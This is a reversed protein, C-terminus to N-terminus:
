LLRDGAGAGASAKYVEDIRCVVVAKGPLPRERERAKRRGKEYLAGDDRIEASGKIQFSRRAERDWGVFAVRPNGELNRRTKNLYNDVVVLTEEDEWWWMGVLIVNPDGSAGATAMSIVRQKEFVSRVDEPVKVMLCGVLM